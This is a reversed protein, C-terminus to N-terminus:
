ESSKEGFFKVAAYFIRSSDFQKDVNIGVFDIVTYMQEMARQNEFLLIGNCHICRHKVRILAM